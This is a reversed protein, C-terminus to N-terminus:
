RDRPRLPVAPHPRRRHALRPPEPRRPLLRRVGRRAPRPRDGTRHRGARGVDAAGRPRPARAAAPPARGRAAPRLGAAHPGEGPRGVEGRRARRGVRAGRAGGPAALGRARLPQDRAADRGGVARRRRRRRRAPLRGGCPRRRPAALDEHRRRHLDGRGRRRTGGRARGPLRGRRRRPRAGAPRGRAPRRVARAGLARVRRRRHRRVVLGDRRGAPADRHPHRKPPRHRPPAPRDGPGLRVGRDDRQRELHLCLPGARRAGMRAAVDAARHVQCALAEEREDDFLRDPVPAVPHETM